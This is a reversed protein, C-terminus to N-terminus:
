YSSQLYHKELAVEFALRHETTFPSIQLGIDQLYTNAAVNSWLLVLCMGKGSIILKSTVTTFQVSPLYIIQGLSCKFTWSIHIM